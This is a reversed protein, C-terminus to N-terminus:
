TKNLNFGKEFICDFSVFFIKMGLKVHLRHAMVDISNQEDKSILQPNEQPKTSILQLLAPRGESIKEGGMYSPLHSFDASYYINLFM